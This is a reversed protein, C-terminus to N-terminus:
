IIAAPVSVTPSRLLSIGQHLLSQFALWGVHRCDPQGCATFQHGSSSPISVQKPQYLNLRAQGRLLSIGQHLLSQFQAPNVARPNPRPKATFQHGSSSPISVPPARDRAVRPTKHLLSIGQHLLSQFEPALATASPQSGLGLLSIGQHLLSQFELEKARIAPHLFKLLSIGQHLLSQFWVHLDGVM